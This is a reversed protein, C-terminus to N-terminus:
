RSVSPVHRRIFDVAVDLAGHHALDNHGAAPATWIEKPENAAAFLRRGSAVPVIMDREGHMVLVPVRVAGIRAVSDFRDKLLLNVPLFAYHHRAVAAVSDFPAELLLAAVLRESAMRVAVGAGLSEGYLVTRAPGVDQAALFDPAARADTFLGDQTPSGPNGGYGRYELFLAGLGEGVFRRLREARYGIHGGNGHFYAITPRRPSAAAYWALLWLGDATRISVDRVGALGLAAVDPRSTDPLYLLHRQFVYLGGCLMAYLIAATATLSIIMRGRNM